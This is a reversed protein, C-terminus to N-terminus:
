DQFLVSVIQHARAEFAICGAQDLPLPAQSEEALNVLAAKKFLKWPKLTVGIPEGALNYGRVLWGHGAEAPKVASIVFTEPIAEVFSAESALNGGHLGTTVARFPADFAYAQQYASTWSGQHPIISYDFSWQGPMQAGPTEM